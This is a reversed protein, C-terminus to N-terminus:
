SERDLINISISLYFLVVASLSSIMCFINSLVFKKCKSIYEKAIECDYVMHKSLGRERQGM